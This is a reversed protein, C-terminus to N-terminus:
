FSGFLPLLLLAHVIETDEVEEVNASSPSASPALTNVVQIAAPPLGNLSDFGVMDESINTSKPPALPPAALEILVVTEGRGDIGHNLLPQVGYATRVQQTSYCSGVTLCNTIAAVAGAHQGSAATPLKAASSNDGCAAFLVGTCVLVLLLSWHRPM